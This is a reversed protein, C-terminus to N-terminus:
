NGTTFSWSFDQAMFDGFLDAVGNSGGKVTVTYNTNPKLAATPTLTVTHTASNYNITVSVVNGTSDKLIITSSNLTSANMDRDFTFTISAGTSVGTAGSAPTTSTITPASPTFMVDVWYNDAQWSSTPFSSAGYKYIGNPGDTGDALAHLPGNTVTNNTFYGDDGVYFGSDTHYSIIYTTNASITVPSSFTASQWGTATEGTFTVSALSTGTRSWLHGTHTGTNNTTKYFRVGIVKGSVDSRFKLGMELSPTTDHYEPQIPTATNPWITFVNQVVENVAASTSSVFNGDGGYVATISHTGAALTSISL